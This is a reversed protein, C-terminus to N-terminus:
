SFCPHPFKRIFSFSERISLSLSIVSSFFSYPLFLLLPPLPLRLFTQFSYFGSQLGSQPRYDSRYLHLTHSSSSSLGIERSMFPFRSHYKIFIKTYFSVVVTKNPFNYRRQSQVFNRFHIYSSFWLKGRKRERLVFKCEIEYLIKSDIQHNSLYRILGMNKEKTITQLDGFKTM